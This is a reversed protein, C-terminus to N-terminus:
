FYTPYKQGEGSRRWLVKWSTRCVLRGGSNLSSVNVKHNVKKKRGFIYASLHMFVSKGNYLHLCFFCLTVWLIDLADLYSMWWWIYNWLLIECMGVKSWTFIDVASSSCPYVYVLFLPRLLMRKIPCSTLLFRNASSLKVRIMFYIIIILIYTRTYSSRRSYFCHVRGSVTQHKRTWRYSIAKQAHVSRCLYTTLWIKNGTVLWDRYSYTSWFWLPFSM